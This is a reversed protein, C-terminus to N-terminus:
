RVRMAKRAKERARSTRVAGCPTEAPCHRNRRTSQCSSPRVWRSSLRRTPMRSGVVTIASFLSMVEYLGAISVRGARHLYYAEVWRVLMGLTLCIAGATAFGSAWRGVRESTFRLHSVYLITSAILLLNAYSVLQYSVLQEFPMGVRSTRMALYEVLVILGLGIVSLGIWFVMTPIPRAHGGDRLREASM